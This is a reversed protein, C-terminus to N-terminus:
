ITDESIKVVDNYLCKYKDDATIDKHYHGFFWCKYSLNKDTSELFETLENVPYGPAIMNQIRTPACHSIVYDVKYDHAILKETGNRYDAESPMSEPWYDRGLIRYFQGAEELRKVKEKSCEEKRDIVEFQEHFQAGGFTFITKNEIRYVEGNLLVMMKDSNKIIRKVKGGNWYSAQIKSDFGYNEHNGLIWLIRYPQRIFFLLEKLSEFWNGSFIGFDGCVILCDGKCINIGGARLANADLRDFTGHTDGTVYIM